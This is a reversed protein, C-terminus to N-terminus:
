IEQKILRKDLKELVLGNHKNITLAGEYGGEFRLEKLRKDLIRRPLKPDLYEYAGERTEVPLYGKGVDTYTFIMDELRKMENGQQGLRNYVEESGEFNFNVTDFFQFIPLFDEYIIHLINYMPPGARADALQELHEYKQDVTERRKERKQEPERKKKGRRIAVKQGPVVKGVHRPKKEGGYGVPADVQVGVDALEARAEKMDSTVMHLKMELDRRNRGGSRHDEAISELLGDQKATLARYRTVLHDTLGMDGPPPPQPKKKAQRAPPKPPPPPTHPRAPPPPKKKAQQLQQLQKKYEELEKKM